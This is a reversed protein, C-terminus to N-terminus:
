NKFWSHLSAREKENSLDFFKGRGEISLSKLKDRRDKPGMFAINLHQGQYAADGVKQVLERNIELGGDTVLIIEVDYGPLAPFKFAKEIGEYGVLDGEANITKLLHPVSSKNGSHKLKVGVESGWTILSFMSKSSSEALWQQSLFELSAMRSAKAMSSSKDIIFIYHNPLDLPESEPAYLWPLRILKPPFINGAEELIKNHISILGEEEQTFLPLILHNFVYNQLNIREFQAPLEIQEIDNLALLFKKWQLNALELRSSFAGKKGTPLSNVLKKSKNKWQEYEGRFSKKKREFSQNLGGRYLQSLELASNILKGNLQLIEAEEILPFDSEKWIRDLEFFVKQHTADLDDLCLSLQQLYVASCGSKYYKERIFFFKEILERSEYLTLKLNEPLTNSISFSIDIYPIEPSSVHSASLYASELELFIEHLQVARRNVDQMTGKLVKSPLKEFDM